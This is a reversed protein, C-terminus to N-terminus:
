VSQPVDVESEERQMICYEGMKSVAKLWKELFRVVKHNRNSVTASVLESNEIVYRKLVSQLTALNVENDLSEILVHKPKGRLAEIDAVSYPKM